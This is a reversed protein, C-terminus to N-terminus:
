ESKNELTLKYGKENIRIFVIELESETLYGKEIEEDTLYYALPTIGELPKEPGKIHYETEVFIDGIDKRFPNASLYFPYYKESKPYIAHTIEADNVPIKNHQIIWYKYGYSQCEGFTKYNETETDAAFLESIPYVKETEEIGQNKLLYYKAELLCTIDHNIDDKLDYLSFIVDETVQNKGADYGINYGENYGQKNGSEKGSTYGLTGVIVLSLIYCLASKYKPKM